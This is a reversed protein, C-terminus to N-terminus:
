ICMWKLLIKALSFLKIIIRYLPPIYHVARSKSLIFGNRSKCSGDRTELLLHTTWASTAPLRTIHSFFIKERETRRTGMKKKEPNKPSM